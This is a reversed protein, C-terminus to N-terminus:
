LDREEKKWPSRLDLSHHGHHDSVMFDEKGFGLICGQWGRGGFIVGLFRWHRSARHAPIGSLVRWNRPCVADTVHYPASLRGGEMRSKRWDLDNWTLAARSHRNLSDQTISHCHACSIYVWKFSDQFGPRKWFRTELQYGPPPIPSMHAWGGTVLCHSDESFGVRFGQLSLGPFKSPSVVYRLTLTRTLTTSFEPHFDLSFPKRSLWSVHNREWLIHHTQTINRM